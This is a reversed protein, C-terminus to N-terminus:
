SCNYLVEDVPNPDPKGLEDGTMGGANDCITLLM